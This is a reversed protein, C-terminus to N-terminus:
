FFLSIGYMVMLTVLILFVDLVLHQHPNQTIFMEYIWYFYQVSHDYCSRLINFM